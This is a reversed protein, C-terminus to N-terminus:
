AIKTHIYFWHQAGVTFQMWFWCYLPVCMAVLWLFCFVLDYYTYVFYYGLFPSCFYDIWCCKTWSYYNFYIRFHTHIFIWPCFSIFYNCVTRISEWEGYKMLLWSAGQISSTKLSSMGWATRHYLLAQMIIFFFNRTKELLPPTILTQPNQWETKCDKLHIQTHLTSVRTCVCLESETKVMSPVATRDESCEPTTTWEYFESEIKVVGGM